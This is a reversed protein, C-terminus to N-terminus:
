RRQVYRSTTNVADASSKCETFHPPPTCYIFSANLGSVFTAIARCGYIVPAM